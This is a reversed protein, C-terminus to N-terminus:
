QIGFGIVDSAPLLYVLPITHCLTATSAIRPFRPGAKSDHPALVGHPPFDIADRNMQGILKCVATMCGVSWVDKVQM